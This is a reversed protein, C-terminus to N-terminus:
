KRTLWQQPDTAQSNKWIEFRLESVGEQNTLISGIEQGTNLQQGKKVFVDKLGAYVTFYGGHTVIVTNGILPVFAVTKVEGTFVTKVKENEKTQIYIGTNNLVISKLVPHNQRGFKQSVFGAVPWPLKSKNDAFQNSLKISAEADSKEALKAKALEEKIIDNIIKDLRAVAKRRDELDGKLKNEQKQLNKVLKNQNQKLGTLSKSEEIQEALLTNKEEMKNEISTIQAGLTEQVKVIEEAQKKRADSYQEMYKLRMFLQNFSKASFIFTLKSFGQNAKYAAYIMAAYEEKLKTLDSELASIISNNEEIEENLLDIEKRISSVLDEQTKIRQNLANLQGITNQKKGTTEALIKEAEEIKKLNDQKEKQLQAKSKQALAPTLGYFLVCLTVAFFLKSVSMSKLSM